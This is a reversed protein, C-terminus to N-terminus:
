RRQYEWILRGNSDPRQSRKHAGTKRIEGRILLARVASGIINPCTDVIDAVDVDDIYAPRETLKSLLREQIRQMYERRSPTREARHLIGDLKLEVQHPHEKTIM